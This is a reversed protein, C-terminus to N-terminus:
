KNGKKERLAVAKALGTEFDGTEVKKMIAKSAGLIGKLRNLDVPQPNDM